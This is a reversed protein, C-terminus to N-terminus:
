VVGGVLAVAFAPVGTLLPFLVLALPAMASQRAGIWLGHVNVWGALVFAGVAVAVSVHLAARVPSNKVWLREYGLHAAFVAACLGWAGLRWVRVGASYSLGDLAAFGIGVVPYAIAVSVAVAVWRRRGPKETFTAITMLM